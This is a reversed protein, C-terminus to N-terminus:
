LVGGASPCASVASSRPKFCSVMSRTCGCQDVDRSWDKATVSASGALRAHDRRSSGDFHARGEETVGKSSAIRELGPAGPEPVSDRIWRRTSTM